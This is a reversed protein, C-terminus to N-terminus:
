VKRLILSQYHFDEESELSVQHFDVHQFLYRGSELLQEDTLFSFFRKPRYHDGIYIGEEQMGGYQGWYFLGDHDLQQRIRELIKPLDYRPVHLLCNMAFVADFSGPAFDLNLFDKVYATLGKQRCSEVMKKSLDTCVVECGNEHFFKGHTGVGAGIELLKVKGEQHLLFLFRQCEEVKWAPIAKTEREEVSRDYAKRLNNLLRKNM